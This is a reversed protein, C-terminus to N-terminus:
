VMLKHAVMGAAAQEFVSTVDEFDFAEGPMEFEVPIGNDM